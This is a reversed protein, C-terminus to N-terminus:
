KRFVLLKSAVYNFTLVVIQAIIFFLPENLSLLDVFVFLIATNLALSAIRVVFFLVAEKNAKAKTDRKSKFVFFKNVFFAFVVAFVWAFVSSLWAPFHFGWSMIFYVIANVLTTLGGFILYLIIEEYKRFLTKVRNKSLM